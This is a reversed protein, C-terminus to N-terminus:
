AAVFSIGGPLSIAVTHRSVIPLVWPGARGNVTDVGIILLPGVGM